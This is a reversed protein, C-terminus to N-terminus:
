ARNTGISFQDLTLPDTVDLAHDQAVTFRNLLEIQTHAAGDTSSGGMYGFRRGDETAFVDSNEMDAYAAGDVPVSYPQADTPISALGSDSVAWSQQPLLDDVPSVSSLAHGASLSAVNAASSEPQTSIGAGSLLEVGQLRTSAFSDLAGQGGSRTSAAWAEKVPEVAKTGTQTADTPALDSSALERESDGRTPELDQRYSEHSLMGGQLSKAHGRISPQSTSAPNTGTGECVGVTGADPQYLAAQKARQMRWYSATFGELSDVAEHGKRLAEADVTGIGFASTTGNSTTSDPGQTRGAVQRSLLRCDSREAEEERCSPGMGYGTPTQADNPLPSHIARRRKAPPKLNPKAGDGNASVAPSHSSLSIGPGAHVGMGAASDAGRSGGAATAAALIGAGAGAQMAQGASPHSARSQGNLGQEGICNGPAEGLDATMQQLPVGAEFVQTTSLNASVPEMKVARQSDALPILDEPSEPFAGADSGIASEYDRKVGCIAMLLERTNRDAGDIRIPAARVPLDSLITGEREQGATVMGLGESSTLRSPLQEHVRYGRPADTGQARARRESQQHLTNVCTALPDSTTATGSAATAPDVGDKCSLVAEIGQRTEGRNAGHLRGSDGEAREPTLRPRDPNELMGAGAPHAAHPRPISVAGTTTNKHSSSVRADEASVSGDAPASTPGGMTHSSSSPIGAPHPEARHQNRPKRSVYPPRSSTVTKSAIGQPAGKRSVRAKSARRQMIRNKRNQKQLEKRAICAVEDPDDSVNGVVSRSTSEFPLLGSQAKSSAPVSREALKSQSYSGDQGLEPCSYWPQSSDKPGPNCQMGHAPTPGDQIHCMEAGSVASVAQESHQVAQAQDEAESALTLEMQSVGSMNCHSGGSDRYLLGPTGCRTVSEPPTVGAKSATNVSPGGDESGPFSSVRLSNNAETWNALPIEAEVSAKWSPAHDICPRLNRELQSMPTTMGSDQCGLDAAHIMPDEVLPMSGSGFDSGTAQMGRVEEQVFHRSGVQASLTCNEPRGLPGQRDIRRTSVMSPITSAQAGVTQGLLAPDDAWGLPAALASGSGQGEDVPSQDNADSANPSVRPQEPFASANIARSTAPGAQPDTELEPSFEQATNGTSTTPAAVAGEHRQPVTNVSSSPVEIAKPIPANLKAGASIGVKSKITNWRNKVASDTRGDFSRAIKAWSRGMSAHLMILKLDEEASWPAKSITPDLHNHWRERCQKGTRGSMSSAIAQWRPKGYQRVREILM